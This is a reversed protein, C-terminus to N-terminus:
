FYGNLGHHLQVRLTVALRKAETLHGADFLHSVFEETQEILLQSKQVSRVMKGHGCVGGGTERHIIKEIQAKRRGQTPPYGLPNVSGPKGHLRPNTPRIGWSDKARSKALMIGFAISGPTLVGAAINSSRAVSSRGGTIRRASGCRPPM